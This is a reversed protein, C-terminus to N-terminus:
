CATVQEPKPWIELLLKIANIDKMTDSVTSTTAGLSPCLLVPGICVALNHSDMKNVDSNMLVAVFHDLLYMITAKSARPFKKVVENVLKDPVVQTPCDLLGRVEQSLLPQPLERLYDKLLGTVINIDTPNEAHSLVVSSSNNEFQARLLKKKAANGCIRYIGTTELGRENIEQVCKHILTPIKTGERRLVTELPFGFVGEKKQSPTRQLLFKMDTFKLKICLMGSPELCVALLHKSGENLLSALSLCGEAIKVDEKKSHSCVTIRIERTRQLDIEFSENWQFDNVGKKPVTSAQKVGDCDVSCVVKTKKRKERPISEGIQAGKVIDLALMGTVARFVSEQPIGPYLRYGHEADDPSVATNSEQIGYPEGFSSPKTLPRAGESFKRVHKRKPHGIKSFWSNPSHQLDESSLSHMFTPKRAHKTSSDPVVKCVQDESEASSSVPSNDSLQSSHALMESRTLGGTELSSSSTKAKRLFSKPSDTSSSSSNSGLSESSKRLVDESCAIKIDTFTQSASSPPNFELHKPRNSAIIDFKIQSPDLRKSNYGIDHSDTEQSVKHENISVSMVTSKKSNSQKNVVNDNSSTSPDKVIQKNVHGSRLNTNNKFPGSPTNNAQKERPLESSALSSSTLSNPCNGNRINRKNVDFEPPAPLLRGSSSRRFQLAGPAITTNKQSSIQTFQKPPSGQTNTSIYNNNYLNRVHKTPKEIGNEKAVGGRKFRVKLTLKKPIQIMAVVDSLKYDKVAVRNIEVIEDGPYLLCNQEVVGGPTLRSVFIGGPEERKSVNHERLSFGLPQGTSKLISVFGVDGDLIVKTNCKPYTEDISKSLIGNAKENMKVDYDLSLLMAVVQPTLRKKAISAMNQTQDMDVSDRRMLKEGSKVSTNINPASPLRRRSQRQLGATTAMAAAFYRSSICQQKTRQRVFYTLVNVTLCCDLTILFWCQTTILDLM